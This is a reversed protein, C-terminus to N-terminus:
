KIILPLYSHTLTSNTNPVTIRLLTVAYPEFTYSLPNNLSTLQTSPANMLDDDPNSVGNFTVSTSDLATAKVVDAQGGTVVTAGDLTIQATIPQNTKNIALVSITTNNVWGAYVSLTTDAPLSSTVPFMQSGFRKWLPFAYYQPYRAFTDPHVTGYDTGTGGVGGALAWQNAMAVGNQMMQGITDTLHLFNVARTMMQQSDMDQFAFLNYETVAVPVRRGGAHTDFATQVDDMMTKWVTQPQELVKAYSEPQSSYAYQHIVYFDMEDGAEQIVENGWNSWDSQIAVGVAGVQISPDVTRMATRFESFGAHRGAGSGLGNVYETGDCTWVDEWGWPSCDTGMGQKGGFFENGIEWYTIKFPDPNGHDRRLRAWDGVTLWDRGLSDVGISRTDDVSGNFFAVLAAAEHATGNMNVTYMGQTGTARLFNIFDTPRAAWTWYCEANSDIGQGDRECALWDYSNSWSGGPMRIFGTGLARTRARFTANEFRSPNIWAPLNTGLVRSNIATKTGTTHITITANTAALSSSNAGPGFRLLELSFLLTCGIVLLITHVNRRSRYRM